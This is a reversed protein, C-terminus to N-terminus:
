GPLDARPHRRARRRQWRIPHENAELPYPSPGRVILRVKLRRCRRGATLELIPVLKDM